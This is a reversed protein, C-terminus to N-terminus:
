PRVIPNSLWALLRETPWCNVIRDSPIRPWGRTRSRPRRTACNRRPTRTATSRSCADQRSRVPRSTYDLDQRAPDGDIEIAVGERAATAFVADWEAVIGARSGSM